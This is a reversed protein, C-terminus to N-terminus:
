LGTFVINPITATLQARQDETRPTWIAIVLKPIRRLGPAAELLAAVPDDAIHLTLEQLFRLSPNTGILVIDDIKTVIHEAHTAYGRHWRTNRGGGLPGLWRFENEAILQQERQRLEVNDPETELKHQVVILEGRPDGRQTLEEGLAIHGDPAGILKDEIERLEALGEVALGFFTPTLRPGLPNRGARAYSVARQIEVRAEPNSWCRVLRVVVRDARQPDAELLALWAKATTALPETMENCVAEAAELDGSKIHLKVIVELEHHNQAADGMAALERRIAIAAAHDGRKGLWGALHARNMRRLAIEIETQAPQLEIAERMFSIAKEYDDLIDGYHQAITQAALARIDKQDGSLEYARLLDALHDPQRGFDFMLLLARELYVRAVPSQGVRAIADDYVSVPPQTQAALVALAPEYTRGGSAIWEDIRQRLEEQTLKSPDLTRAEEFCTVAADEIGLHTRYLDGLREYLKARIKDRRPSYSQLRRIMKRYARDLKKWDSSAVLMRIISDVPGLAANLQLDPPDSSWYSDLAMDFHELADDPRALEDRYILAMGNYWDGQQMGDRDLELLKRLTDLAQESQKAQRYGVLDASLRAKEDGTTTM